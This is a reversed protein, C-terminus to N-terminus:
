IQQQPSPSYSAFLVVAFFIQYKKWKKRKKHVINLVAEDLAGWIGSHRLISPDFGPCNRSCWQSDSARVVLSSGLHQGRWCCRFLRTRKKSIRPRCYVTSWSYITENRYLTGLSKRTWWRLVSTKDKVPWQFRPGRIGLVSIKQCGASSLNYARLPWILSCPSRFM